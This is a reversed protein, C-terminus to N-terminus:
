PHFPPIPAVRKNEIMERLYTTVRPIIRELLAQGTERTAL